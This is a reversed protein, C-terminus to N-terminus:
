QVIEVEAGAVLHVVNGDMDECYSYMGDLHGFYLIDESNINLSAPPTHIGGIVRIKSGNPVDHLKM